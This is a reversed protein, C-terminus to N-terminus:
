SNETVKFKIFDTPVLNYWLPIKEEKEDKIKKFHDWM